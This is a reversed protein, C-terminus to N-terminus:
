MEARLAAIQSEVNALWGNDTGLIAERVRRDTVTGELSAIEAKIDRPVVPRTFVGDAYTDGINANPGLIWNDALASESSAINTVIGNTIIAYRM